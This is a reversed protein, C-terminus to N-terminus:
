QFMLQFIKENFIRTLQAKLLVDTFSQNIGNRILHLIEMRRIDPCMDTLLMINDTLSANSIGINDTNVSVQVGARLYDLLPYSKDMNKMPSFGIIQYNAYPCMEVGIQRNAMSKLLKKDQWLHLGHGIRRTNLKFVAEWIGESDDNEGAHITLAIGEKHIIDFEQHYLGARTHISEFGALDVGVVKCIGEKKSVSESMAALNLHKQMLSVDNNAKRTAILIINVHCWIHSRIKAEQMKRNLTSIIISLVEAGSMDETAYNFPSCRLEAYVINDRMFHDYILELQKILCGRNKLLTSGNNDGLRMYDDLGIPSDSQPWFDPYSIPLVDPIDFSDDAAERVQQLLPGHTAFGGLHCHLEVKPLSQVWNKDEVSLPKNLWQIAPSPLLSLSEFPYENIDSINRTGIKDVISNIVAVDIEQTSIARKLAPWGPQHGLSAYLIAHNSIALQIEGITKPETDRRGNFFMHFVDDAGFLFACKQMALSHLKHGGGIFVYVKDMNKSCQIFWSMIEEEIEDYEKENRVLGENTLPSILVKISRAEFYEQIESPIIGPKTRIYSVRHISVGKLKLLKVAQVLTIDKNDTIALLTNM